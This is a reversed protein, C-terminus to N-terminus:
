FDIGLRISGDFLKSERNFFNVYPKLDASVSLPSNNFHYQLGFIVTAGLYFKGPEPADPEVRENPSFVIGDSGTKSDTSLGPMKFGTHMGAGAYWSLGAINQFSQHEEYLGTLRYSSFGHNVSVIAHVASKKDTFFRVGAGYSLLGANVEAQIVSKQASGTLSVALLCIFLFKIKLLNKM